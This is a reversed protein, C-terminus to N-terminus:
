LQLGGAPQQHLGVASLHLEPLGLLGPISRQLSCNGQAVKHLGAFFVPLLCPFGACSFPSKINFLTTAKCLLERKAAGFGLVGIESRNMLGSLFRWGQHADQHRAM